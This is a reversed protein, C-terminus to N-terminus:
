FRNLVMKGYFYFPNSFFKIFYLFYDPMGVNDIYRGLGNTINLIKNQYLYNMMRGRLPESRVSENINCHQAVCIHRFEVSVPRM